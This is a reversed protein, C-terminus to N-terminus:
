SFFNLYQQFSLISFFFFFFFHVFFFVNFQIIINKEFPFINSVKENEPIPIDNIIMRNAYYDIMKQYILSERTNNKQEDDSDADLDEHIENNKKEQQIERLRRLNINRSHNIGIPKFTFSTQYLSLSLNHRAVIYAPYDNAGHLKMFIRKVMKLPSVQLIGNQIDTKLVENIIKNSVDTIKECKATYKAMYEACRIADICISWDM